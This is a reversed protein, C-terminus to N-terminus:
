KMGTAPKEVLSGSKPSVLMTASNPRVIPRLGISYKRLALRSKMPIPFPTPVGNKADNECGAKQATTGQAWVPFSALGITMFVAIILKKMVQGADQQNSIQCAEISSYHRMVRYKAYFFMLHLILELGM